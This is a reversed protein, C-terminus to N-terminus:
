INIFTKNKHPTEHNENLSLSGMFSKYKLSYNGCNRKVNRKASAAIESLGGAGDFYKLMHSRVNTFATVKEDLDKFPAKADDSINQLESIKLEADEPNYNGKENLLEILSKHNGSKSTRDPRSVATGEAENEHTSPDDEKHPHSDSYRSVNEGTILRVLHNIRDYFESSYFTKITELIVEIALDHDKEFIADTNGQSIDLAHKTNRYPAISPKVKTTLFLKIAVAKLELSAPKYIAPKELHVFLVINNDLRVKLSTHFNSVM